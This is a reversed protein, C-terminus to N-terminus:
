QNEGNMLSDIFKALRKGGAEHGEQSPHYGSGYTPSPYLRTYYV